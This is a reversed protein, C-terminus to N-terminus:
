WDSFAREDLTIRPLSDAKDLFLAKKEPTVLRNVLTGGHPAIGDKNMTM